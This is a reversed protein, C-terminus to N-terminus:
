QHGLINKRKFYARSGNRNWLDFFDHKRYQDVLAAGLYGIGLPVTRPTCDVNQMDPNDHFLDVLFVKM